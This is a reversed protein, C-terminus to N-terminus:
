RKSSSFFRGFSSKLDVGLSTRSILMQEEDRVNSLFGQFTSASGNEIGVLGSRYLYTFTKKIVFSSYSSSSTSFTENSVFTGLDIFSYILLSPPVFDPAVPESYGGPSDFRVTDNWDAQTSTNVNREM